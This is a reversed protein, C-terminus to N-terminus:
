SFLSILVSKYIGSEQYEVTKVRVSSASANEESDFGIIADVSSRSAGYHPCLVTPPPTVQTTPSRGRPPSTPGQM